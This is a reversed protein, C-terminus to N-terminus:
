AGLVEVNFTDVHALNGANVVSWIGTLAIHLNSTFDISTLAGAGAATAGSPVTLIGGAFATGTAGGTRVTLEITGEYVDNATADLATGDWLTKAGSAGALGTTSLVLRPRFTNTSNAATTKIRFRARVISGAILRSAGIAGTDAMLVESDDGTTAGFDRSAAALSYLLATPNGSRLLAVSADGGADPFTYTRAAAQAAFTLNTVTNGTNNAMTLTTQGKAATSPYLAITGAVGSRGAVIAGESLTSSATLNLLTQVGAKSFGAQYFATKNGM